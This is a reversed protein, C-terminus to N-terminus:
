RVRGEVRVYAEATRGSALEEARVRWLGPVDNAAIDATGEVVGDKAGYYGSFEAAKGHPDLLDIKVPVIADIAAGDSDVVTATFSIRGGPSASSPAEIRVGEIARETIMLVRGECPGLHSEIGIQGESRVVDLERHTVLDYVHGADRSVNLEMDTPLGNEMVLGHHGIYDGFERNDNVAFLYDTSGYQRVRTIVSPDTSAAYRTYRPDLKRRLNEATGMMKDRANDAEKPRAWSEILIDPQIAPCLNEDGVIIGGGDQFAQIKEVVSELLVDCDVLVLVKFAGLGEQQITEDYVVRPQLQAYHLILYADGAWGGNWGYAGRGAFMQASLSELFAVDSKRDPVQILTPGLPEVVTKVLRGLEHKTGPHTYCYSGHSSGCDVLSQWGHYM